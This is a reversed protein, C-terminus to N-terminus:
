EVTTFITASDLGSENSMTWLHIAHELNLPAPELELPDLMHDITRM